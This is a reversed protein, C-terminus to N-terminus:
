DKDVFGLLDDTNVVRRGKRAWLSQVSFRNQRVVKSILLVNDENEEEKRKSYVFDFCLIFNMLLKSNAAARRL